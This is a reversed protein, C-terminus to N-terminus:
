INAIATAYVAIDTASMGLRRASNQWGSLAASVESIIKEAQVDKLAFYRASRRAQDLDADPGEESIWTTLERAKEELPVPNLDYAPSLRWKDDRDYLFGHNRLHDDLNGIMVNFVIRRWLEHLDEIPASSYMRICEAIDTYTAEDGDNLGLLSMASLFPIRQNENRDFRKILAVPRGAVDLLRADPVTLGAKRALVMALVEGHPISRDDDLKPFKAIILSGDEDVVASKPRAGGLPSGENLLLKLDEATETNTQVADAANILAPLQILPPVRFHGIDHDFDGEGVRRYRIAGIRTLDTIALMYDIESLTREEGTKRFARKILQQGWRDPATDRLAGPLASKESSTYFPGAQLPLNAPDIAFASERNLWSSDYEFVSSQGRRKAVYRFLDVLLTEDGQDIYIEIADTV